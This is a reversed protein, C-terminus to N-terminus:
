LVRALIRLEDGTSATSATEIASFMAGTTGEDVKGDAAPALMDGAAIDAAAALVVTVEEGSKLVHARAWSNIPRAVTIADAATVMDEQEVLIMVGATNGDTNLTFAAGDSQAHTSNGAAFSDVATVLQGALASAGLKGEIRRIEGLPVPVVTKFRSM